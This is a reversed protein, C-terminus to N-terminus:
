RSRCRSRIPRRRRPPPSGTRRRGRSFAFRDQQTDARRHSDADGRLQRQPQRSVGRVHLTPHQRPHDHVCCSLRAGGSAVRAQGRRGVSVGLVSRVRLRHLNYMAGCAKEAADEAPATAATPASDGGTTGMAETCAVQTTSYASGSHASCYFVRDNCEAMWTRTGVGESDNTITIDAEACGIQGSTVGRVSSVCASSLFLLLASGLLGFASRRVLVFPLPLTRM